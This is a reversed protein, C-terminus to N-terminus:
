KKFKKLRKHKYSKSEFKQFDDDELDDLEFSREGTLLDEEPTVGKSNNSNNEKGLEKVVEDITSFGKKHGEIHYKETESPFTIKKGNYNVSNDIVEVGLTDALEKLKSYYFDQGEEEGELDTDLVPPEMNPEDLNDGFESAIDDEIQDKGFVFEENAKNNIFQNYKKIM